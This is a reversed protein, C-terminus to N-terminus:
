DSPIATGSVNEDYTTNILYVNGSADIRIDHPDKFHGWSKILTGDPSFKEVRHNGSDAVFINGSSDVAVGHPRHFFPGEGRGESGFKLLFKGDPSFKQINAHVQDAIYFNGSSDIAIGHPHQLQGDAPGTSVLTQLYKGDSTFKFAMNRGKDTVLINGSSDVAVGWPKDLSGEISSSSSSAATTTAAANSNESGWKTIFKGDATFKSIRSNGLEAVYVNGSSDIAMDEVRTFQGDGSGQSGWKTIFKGDATFKSIHPIADPHSLKSQFNGQDSVYVNGSSDIAIGHAHYFQGPGSGRSGWGLIFNGDNDFKYVNFEDTQAKATTMMTATIVIIFTTTTLGALVLLLLLKSFNQPM